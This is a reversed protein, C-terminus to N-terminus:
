NGSGLYDRVWVRRIEIFITQGGSATTARMAIPNTQMADPQELAGVFLGAALVFVWDVEVGVEIGLEVDLKGAKGDGTTLTSLSTCM